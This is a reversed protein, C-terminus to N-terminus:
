YCGMTNIVTAEYYTKFDAACDGVKHVLNVNLKDKGAFRRSLNKSSNSCRDTLRPLMQMKTATLRGICSCLTARWKNVDKKNEKMRMKHNEGCGGVGKKNSICM